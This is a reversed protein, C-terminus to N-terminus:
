QERGTRRRLRTTLNFAALMAREAGSGAAPLLGLQRALTAGDVYANNAAIRGARIQFCDCGELEIARGNPAIGNYPVSGSLSGRGTWRVWYEDESALEALIEVQLDPFARFLEGFYARVGDPAVVEAQGVIRDVGGPEWCAVMAEADGAAFAAM